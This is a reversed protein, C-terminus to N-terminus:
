GVHHIFLVSKPPPTVSASHATRFLTTLSTGFGAMAWHLDWHRAM